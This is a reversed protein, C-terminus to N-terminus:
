GSCSHNYFGDSEIMRDLKTPERVQKLDNPNDAVNSTEGSHIVFAPDTGYTAKRKETGDDDLPNLPHNSNLGTGCERTAVPEVLGHPGQREPSIAGQFNSKNTEMKQIYGRM